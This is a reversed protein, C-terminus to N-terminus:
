LPPIASGSLQHTTKRFRKLIHLNRKINLSTEQKALKIDISFSNWLYPGTYKITLMTLVLPKQGDISVYQGMNTRRFPVKFNHQSNRTHKIVKKPILIDSM